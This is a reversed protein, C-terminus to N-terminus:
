GGDWYRVRTNCKMCVLEGDGWLPDYNYVQQDERGAGCQPCNVQPGAKSAEQQITQKIYDANM